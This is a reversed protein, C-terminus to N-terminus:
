DRNCRQQKRVAKRIVDMWRRRAGRGARQAIRRRGVGQYAGGPERGAAAEVAM